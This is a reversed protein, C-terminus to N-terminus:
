ERSRLLNNRQQILQERRKGTAGKISEALKEIWRLVQDNVPALGRREAIQARLVERNLAQGSRARRIGGPSVYRKADSAGARQKSARDKHGYVLSYDAFTSPNLSVPVM